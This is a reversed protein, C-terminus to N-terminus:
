KTLIIRALTWCARASFQRAMDFQNDNLNATIHSGVPLSLAPIAEALVDETSSYFNHVKSVANTFRNRRTLTSRADSSDFLEHRNAAWLNTPYGQWAEPRMANLNDDAKGDFCEQAFAANM